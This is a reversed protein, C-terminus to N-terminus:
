IFYQLQINNKEVDVRVFYISSVFFHATGKPFDKFLDNLKKEDRICDTIFVSMKSIINTNVVSTIFSIKEDKTHLGNLEKQIDDSIHRLIFIPKEKDIFKKATLSRFEFHKSDNILESMKKIFLDMDFYSTIDRKIESIATLNTIDQENLLDSTDLNTDITGM